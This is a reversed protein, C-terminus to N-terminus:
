DICGVGDECLSIALGVMRVLVPCVKTLVDFENDGVVVDTDRSVKAKSLTIAMYEGGLVVGMRYGRMVSVISRM